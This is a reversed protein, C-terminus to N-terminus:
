SEENMWQQQSAKTELNNKNHNEKMKIKTKWIQNVKLIRHKNCIRKLEKKIKKRKRLLMKKNKIRMKKNIKWKNIM